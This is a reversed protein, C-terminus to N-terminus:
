ATESGYRKFGVTLGSPVRAWSAKLGQAMGQSNRVFNACLTQAALPRGLKPGRGRWSSFESHIANALRECHCRSAIGHPSKNRVTRLHRPWVSNGVM